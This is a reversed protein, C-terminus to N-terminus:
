EQLVGSFLAGSDDRDEDGNRYNRKITENTVCGRKIMGFNIDNGANWGYRERKANIRKSSVTEEKM